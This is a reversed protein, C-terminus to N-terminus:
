GTISTIHDDGPTMGTSGLGHQNSMFAAVDHLRFRRIGRKNRQYSRLGLDLYRYLTSRACHLYECVERVTLFRDAPAFLNVHAVSGPGGHGDSKRGADSEIFATGLGTAARDLCSPAIM